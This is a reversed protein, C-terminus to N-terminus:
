HAKEPHSPRWFRGTQRPFRLSRLVLCESRYEGSEGSIFIMANPSNSAPSSVIRSQSVTDMYFRTPSGHNQLSASRLTESLNKKVERISDARTQIDSIERDLDRTRWALELEAQANAQQIQRELERVRQQQLAIMSLHETKELTLLKDGSFVEDGAKVHVALLRSEAPVQLSTIDAAIVGRLPKLSQLSLWYVLLCGVILSCSLLSVTRIVTAPLHASRTSPGLPQPRCFIQAQEIWQEDVLTSASMGLEDSFACIEPHAWIAIQPFFYVGLSNLIVAERTDVGRIATLDDAGSPAHDYVAGFHRDMRYGHSLQDFYNTPLSRNM